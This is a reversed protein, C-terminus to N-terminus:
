RLAALCLFAKYSALILDSSCMLTHNIESVPTESVANPGYKSKHGKVDKERPESEKAPVGYFHQADPRLRSAGTPSRSTKGGKEISVPLSGAKPSAKPPSLSAEGM